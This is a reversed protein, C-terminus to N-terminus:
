PLAILREYIEVSLLVLIYILLLYHEYSVYPFIYQAYASILIYAYKSTFPSIREAVNAVTQIAHWQRSM